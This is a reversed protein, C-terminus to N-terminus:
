PAKSYNWVKWMRSSSMPRRTVNRCQLTSKVAVKYGAGHLALSIELRQTADMLAVRLVKTM